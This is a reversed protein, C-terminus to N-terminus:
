YDSGGKEEENPVNVDVMNKAHTALHPHSRAVDIALNLLHESSQSAFASIALSKMDEEAKNSVNRQASMGIEVAAMGDELSVDPIFTGNRKRNKLFSILVTLETDM